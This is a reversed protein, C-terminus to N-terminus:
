RYVTGTDGWWVEGRGQMRDRAWDGSYVLAGAPWVMTGRGSRRGKWDLEGRYLGTDGESFQGSRFMLSKLKYIKWLKEITVHCISTTM